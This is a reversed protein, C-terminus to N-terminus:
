TVSKTISSYQATVLQTDEDYSFTTSMAMITMSSTEYNFDYSMASMSINGNSNNANIPYGNYLIVLENERLRVCLDMAKEWEEPTVKKSSIENGSFNFYSIGFIIWAEIGLVPKAYAAYKNQIVTDPLYEANIKHVEKVKGLVSVEYNGTEAVNLFVEENCDISFPEGNGGSGGYIEGNGVIIVNEMDEEDSVWAVCEFPVGDFIVIYTEGAIFRGSGVLPAYLDDGVSVTQEGFLVTEVPDDTWFPRNKVYDPATPDNQNWDPKKIKGCMASLLDYLKSM